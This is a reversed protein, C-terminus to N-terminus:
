PMGGDFGSTGNRDGNEGGRYAVAYGSLHDTLLKIEKDKRVDVANMVDLVERSQTDIWVAKLAKTGISADDCRAYSLTIFVPHKFEFHDHGEARVDVEVYPTAPVSVTFTTPETVAGGPIVLTAGSTVISGGKPGIVASQTVPTAVGCSLLASTGDAQRAFSAPSEALTVSATPRTPADSCAALVLTAAAATAKLHAPLTFRMTKTFYPLDHPALPQPM